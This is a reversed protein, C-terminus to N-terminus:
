SGGGFQRTIVIGGPPLLGFHEFLCWGVLGEGELASSPVVSWGTTMWAGWLRGLCSGGLEAVSKSFTECQKSREWGLESGYALRGRVWCTPPGQFIWYLVFCVFLCVFVM